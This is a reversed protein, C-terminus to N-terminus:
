DILISPLNAKKVFDHYERANFTNFTFYVPNMNKDNYFIEYHCYPVLNYSSYGAIGIRQGKVVNQNESVLIKSLGDYLTKYGNQHDILIYAGKKSNGISIVKGSATAFISAGSTTTLDIGKHFVTKKLVPDLRIGFGYVLKLDRKLIPLITPINDIKSKVQVSDKVLKQLVDKYGNMYSFLLNVREDNKKAFKKLNKLLREDFVSQQEFEEPLKSTGILLKYLIKNYEKMLGLIEVNRNYQIYFDKYIQRLHKNQQKLVKEAPKDLFLTFFYYSVFTIAVLGLLQPIVINVIKYFFPIKKFSLTSPDFKFHQKPM